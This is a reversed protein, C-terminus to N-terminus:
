PLLACLLAERADPSLSGVLAKCTMDQGLSRMDSLLSGIRDGLDRPDDEASETLIDEATRAEVHDGACDCAISLISEAHAIIAERGSKMVALVNKPETDIVADYIKDDYEEMADALLKRCTDREQWIADGFESLHDPLNEIWDPTPDQKKKRKM